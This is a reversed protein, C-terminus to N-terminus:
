RKESALASYVLVIMWVFLAFYGIGCVWAMAEAFPYKSAAIWQILFPRAAFISVIQIANFELMPRKRRKPSNPGPLWNLRLLQKAPRKKTCSKVQGSQGMARDVKAAVPKAISGLTESVTAGATLANEFNSKWSPQTIETVSDAPIPSLSCPGIREGM